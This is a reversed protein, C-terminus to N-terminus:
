REGYKGGKMAQELARATRHIEGARRHLQAACRRLEDADAALWFGAGPDSLIPAGARREACVRRTIERPQQGTIRALQRTTLAAGRDRPLLAALSGQAPSFAMIYDAEPLEDFGDLRTQEGGGPHQFVQAAKRSKKM